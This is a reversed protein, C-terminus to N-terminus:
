QATATSTEPDVGVTISAKVGRTIRKKDYHLTLLGGTAGSDDYLIDEPLTVREVTSGAYPETAAVAQVAEEEFYLQGTHCTRGGEYGSSTWTGNVHVHTHIHAARGEYWGPFISTFRVVGQHDTRLTGRLYREDDTPEIHIEGGGSGDAPPETPLGPPLSSGISEYGSYIGLADCHWIDVAANRVPKCTEADIVKIVLTLPVGQKDETIDARVKDADIYYPGEITEASLRYCAEGAAAKAGKVEAPSEGALATTALVGGAGAVAVAAGGAVLVQRRSTNRKHRAGDQTM